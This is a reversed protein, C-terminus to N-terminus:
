YIWSYKIRYSTLFLFARSFVAESELFMRKKLLYSTSPQESLSRKKKTLNKRPSEDKSIDSTTYSPFWVEYHSKYM